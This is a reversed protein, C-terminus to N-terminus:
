PIMSDPLKVSGNGNSELEIEEPPIEVVKGDRWSIIPQGLLKHLRLASQVAQGMAKAMRENDSFFEEIKQSETKAM